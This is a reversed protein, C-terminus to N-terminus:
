IFCANTLHIAKINSMQCDKTGDLLHLLVYQLNEGNKPNIAQITALRGTAICDKTGDKNVDIGHCNLAFVESYSKVKWLMKGDHGRLAIVAGACPVEMGKFILYPNQTNTSKYRKITIEFCCHQYIIHVHFRNNKKDM